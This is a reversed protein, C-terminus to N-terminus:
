AASEQLQYGGKRLQSMSIYDGSKEFQDFWKVGGVGWHDNPGAVNGRSNVTSLWDSGGGGRMHKPGRMHKSKTTCKISKKSSSKKTSSKKTVSKKKTDKSQISKKKQIKKGGEYEENDNDNEYEENEYEENENGEEPVSTNINFEKPKFPRTSRPENGLFGYLIYEFANKDLQSSLNINAETGYISQYDYEPQIGRNLNRKLTENLVPYVMYYKIHRRIINGFQNYDEINEGYANYKVVIANYLGSRVRKKRILIIASKDEGMFECQILDNYSVTEGNITTKNRPNNIFNCMARAQMIALHTDMTQEGGYMRKKNNMLHNYVERSKEVNKHAKQAEKQAKILNKKAQNLTLSM